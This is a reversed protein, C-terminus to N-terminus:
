EILGIPEDYAGYTTYTVIEAPPRPSFEYSAPITPQYDDPTTQTFFQRYMNELPVNETGEVPKPKM